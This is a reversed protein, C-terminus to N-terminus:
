KHTHISIYIYAHAMNEKTKWQKGFFKCLFGSNKKAAEITKPMDFNIVRQVGEIDLGRGAVDTAVLIDYRWFKWASNVLFSLGSSYPYMIMVYIYIVYIYCIYYCIAMISHFEIDTSWKIFKYHCHPMYQDHLWNNTEYFRTKSNRTETKPLTFRLPTGARRSPTWQGNASSRRFRESVM